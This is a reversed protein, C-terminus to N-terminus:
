RKNYLGKIIKDLRISVWQAELNAGAPGFHHGDDVVFEDFDIM